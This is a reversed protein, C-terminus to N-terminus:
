FLLRYLLTANASGSKATATVKIDEDKATIPSDTGWHESIIEAGSTSAIFVTSTGYELKLTLGGGNTSGSFGVAQMLKGAVSTAVTSTAILNLPGTSYFPQNFQNLM